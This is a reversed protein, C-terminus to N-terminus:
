QTNFKASIVTFGDVTIEAKHLTSDATSFWLTYLTKVSEGAPTEDIEVALYDEGDLTETYVESVYGERIANVILPLAEVPSTGGGYIVGTDIIVDDSQLSVKKDKDIQVSIGSIIDPSLVTVEGSKGDGTYSLTYDYRRDGYDATLEASLSVDAALYAARIDVFTQTQDHKSCACLLMLLAAMSIIKKM